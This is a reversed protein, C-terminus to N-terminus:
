QTKTCELHETLDFPKIGVILNTDPTFYRLIIRHFEYQQNFYRITQSTLMEGIRRSCRSCQPHPDYTAEFHQYCGVLSCSIMLWFIM